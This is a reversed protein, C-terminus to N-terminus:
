QDAVARAGRGQRADGGAGPVAVHGLRRGALSPQGHERHDLGQAVALFATADVRHGLQGVIAKEGLGVHGLEGGLPRASTVRCAAVLPVCTSNASMELDKPPTRARSSILRFIPWPDIWASTPSFPAPLDVSPLIRAPTM